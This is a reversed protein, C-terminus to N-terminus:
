DADEINITDDTCTLVTASIGNYWESYKYISRTNWEEVTGDYYITTINSCGSFAPAISTIDHPITFSTLSTCNRFVHYGIDRVCSPLAITALSSCGDFAKSNIYRLTSGAAFNVTTLATCGSFAESGISSCVANITVTQLASCGEAADPAISSVYDPLTYSTLETGMPIKQLYYSEESDHCFLVGYADVKFQVPDPGITFAKIPCMYFGPVQTMLSGIHVSELGECWNFAGQSIYSPECVDSFTVSALDDCHFFPSGDLERLNDGLTISTIPVGSLSSDEFIEILDLGKMDTLSSCSTFCYSGIHTVNSSRFDVSTLGSCRYFAYDGVKTINSGTFTVTEVDGEIYFAYDAVETVPLGDIESEFVLNTVDDSANMVVWHDDGIKKYKIKKITRYPNGYSHQTECENGYTIVLKKFMMSDNDENDNTILFYDPLDNNFVFHYGDPYTSYINSYYYYSVVGGNKWGWDIRTTTAPNDENFFIDLSRIAYIASSDRNGFYGSNQGKLEVFDGNRKGNGLIFDVSNGLQDTYATITKSEYADATTIDDANLTITYETDTGKLANSDGGKNLIFLSAAVTSIALTSGLALLIIKKKM